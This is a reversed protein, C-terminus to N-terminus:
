QGFVDRPAAVQYLVVAAGLCCAAVLVVGATAGAPWVRRAREAPVVREIEGRPNWPKSV